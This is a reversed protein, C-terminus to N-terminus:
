QDCISQLAVWDQDSLVARGSRGAMPDDAMLDEMPSGANTRHIAFATSPVAAQDFAIRLEDLPPMPQPGDLLRDAYTRLVDPPIDSTTLLRATVSLPADALIPTIPDTARRNAHAALVYGAAIQPDDVNQLLDQDLVIIGGPLAFSRAGGLPMVVIQGPSEPGLLRIQLTRLAAAGLRGRCTNGKRRQLHGLLTAGIEVRKAQPVVAAAQDRLAGPLWFIAGAAIAGIIVVTSLHRLKGPRPRARALTKRVTEIADIMLPDEVELTETADADPAFVAPRDGPNQREVAALSWHTLPRGAGDAIVLTADGFSVTVDRRQGDPDPRWLGGSELRDYQKLATM